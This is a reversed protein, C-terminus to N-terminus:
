IRLSYLAKTVMTTNKKCLEWKCNKEIYPILLMGGLHAKLPCEVMNVTQM